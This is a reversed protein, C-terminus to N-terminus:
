VGFSNINYKKVLERALEKNNNNIADQILNGDSQIEDIGNKNLYEIADLIQNFCWDILDKSKIFYGSMTRYEFGFNTMRFCGAKGYLERRRDDPDILISPVGLFLDFAKLANISAEDNHNDYGLHLHFGASRLSTRGGCPANNTKETWCNYDPCCGFAKAEKSRLQDPTFVGSAMYEPSLDRSELFGSIYSKMIEISNIADHINTAAPINFEGLVNDTQIAYGDGLANLKYPESKTGHIIGISSILKGKKDKIFFEPDSGFTLNKYAFNM